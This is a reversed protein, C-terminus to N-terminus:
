SIEHIKHLYYAMDWGGPTGYARIGRINGLSIPKLGAVRYTMEHVM